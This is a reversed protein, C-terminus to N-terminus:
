YGIRTGVPLKKPDGSFGSLEKWRNGSGLYQEAIGWLTDGPKVTYSGGGSPAKVYQGSQQPTPIQPAYSTSKTTPQNNQGSSTDYSSVQAGPSYAPINGGYPRNALGKERAVTWPSWGQQSWMQAAYWVNFEANKLQEPGPRGQLARIQFLGYSPITQGRIPYDDGVVWSKGGSEGMMVQYANDWESPPFYKKILEMASGQSEPVPAM